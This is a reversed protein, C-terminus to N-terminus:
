DSFKEVNKNKSMMDAEQSYVMKFFKSADIHGDKRIPVAGSVQV